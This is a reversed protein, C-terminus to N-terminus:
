VLNENHMKLYIVSVLALTLSLVYVYNNILGLVHFLIAVLMNVVASFVFARKTDDAASMTVFFAGSILLMMLPGFLGDSVGNVYRAFDVIGTQNIPYPFTM